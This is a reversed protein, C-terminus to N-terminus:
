LMVQPMYNGNVRPDGNENSRSNSVLKVQKKKTVNLLFNMNLHYVGDLLLKASAFYTKHGLVINAQPSNFLNFSM